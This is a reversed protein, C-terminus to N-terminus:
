GVLRLVVQTVAAGAVMFLLGNVRSRVEGVDRELARLREAVAARFEPAGMPAALAEPTQTRTRRWARAFRAV